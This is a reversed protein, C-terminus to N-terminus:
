QDTQKWTGANRTAAKSRLTRPKSTLHHFLRDLLTRHLSASVSRNIFLDRPLRYLRHRGIRKTNVFTVDHVGQIVPARQRRRAPHWTSRACHDSPRPTRHRKEARPHANQASRVFSRSVARKGRRRLTPGLLITSTKMAHLRASGAGARLRDFPRPAAADRRRRPRVGRLAPLASAM